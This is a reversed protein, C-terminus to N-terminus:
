DMKPKETDERRAAEDADEFSSAGQPSRYYRVANLNAVDEGEAVVDADALALLEEVTDPMAAVLGHPDIHNTDYTLFLIPANFAYSGTPLPPFEYVEGAKVQFLRGDETAIDPEVKSRAIEEELKERFDDRFKALIRTLNTAAPEDTDAYTVFVDIDAPPNGAIPRRRGRGPVRGGRAAEEEARRVLNEAETWFREDHNDYARQIFRWTEWEQSDDSFYQAVRDVDDLTLPKEDRLRTALYNHSKFGAGKAVDRLTLRRAAMVGRIEAAVARAFPTETGEPFLVM